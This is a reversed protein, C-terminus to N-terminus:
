NFWTSSVCLEKGLCSEFLMRGELNRQGVGYGGHVECFRDIHRGIHRSFGGLCMVSDGASHTYWEGKLAYYFCNKEELSRGSQPDYGYILRLVDGLFVVVVAMVRDSVRGVEVVEECLEEM